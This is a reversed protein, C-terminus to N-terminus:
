RVITFRCKNPRTEENMKQIRRLLDRADTSEDLINQVVEPFCSEFNRLAFHRRVRDITREVRSSSKKRQPVYTYKDINRKMSRDIQERSYDNCALRTFFVNQAIRRAPNGAWSENSPIRKNACLSQSGVISGSGIVTGKLITAGEGLWVHDGIFVNKAPNVRKHTECDYVMHADTTRIIVGNAILADDGIFLSTQEGCFATLKGVKNIIADRGIFFLSNHWVHIIARYPFDTSSLYVLSNDGHFIIKTQTLNVGDECYLVNGQGHFVVSSKNM